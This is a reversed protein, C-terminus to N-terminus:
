EGNKLIAAILDDKEICSTTDLGRQQMIGKLEKVSLSHLEEETLKTPVNVFNTTQPTTSPPPSTSDIGSTSNSDPSNRKKEEADLGFDHLNPAGKKNKGAKMYMEGMKKLAYCRTEKAKKSLLPDRLQKECVTRVISEIELQGLKWFTEMGKEMMRKQTEETELRGDKEAEQMMKQMELASVAVSVTEKILHGKEAVESFFAEIGFFRGLHQKAEQTYIYGLIYLLSGGGPVEQKEKIDQEILAQFGKKDGKEWIELKASLKKVLNEIREQQLKNLKAEREQEEV